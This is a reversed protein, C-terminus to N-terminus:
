KLLLFGSSLAIGIAMMVLSYVRQGLPEILFWSLTNGVINSSQNFCLNLGFYKEVCGDLKGCENVYNFIGNYYLSMILGSVLSGVM